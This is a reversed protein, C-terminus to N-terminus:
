EREIGAMEAILFEALENPLEDRALQAIKGVILLAIFSKKIGLAEAEQEIFANMMGMLDDLMNPNEEMKSFLNEFDKGPGFSANIINSVTLVESTPIVTRVM